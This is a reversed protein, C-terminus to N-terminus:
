CFSKMFFMALLSLVMSCCCSEYVGPLFHYDAEWLGPTSSFMASLCCWINGVGFCAVMLKLFSPANLDM